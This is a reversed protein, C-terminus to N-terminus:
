YARINPQQAQQQQGFHQQLFMRLFPAFAAMGGAGLQQGMSPNAPNQNLGQLQQLMQQISNQAQGQASNWLGTQLGAMANGTMSPVMSSLVAGTGSQNVGSQGLQGALQSGAQNSGAAVQRQAQSFAPSGLGQQYFQQTLRGMNQPSLINQVQHQYKRNPDGGFMGGLLSPLLSGLGGMLLGGLGMEQGPM